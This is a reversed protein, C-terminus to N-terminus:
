AITVESEKLLNKIATYTQAKARTITIKGSECVIDLAQGIKFDAARLCAGKLYLVPLSPARRGDVWTSSKICVTIYKLPLKSKALQHTKM